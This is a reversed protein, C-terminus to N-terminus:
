GHMLIVNVDMGLYQITDGSHVFVIIYIKAINSSFLHPLLTLIRGPIKTLVPFIFIWHKTLSQSYNSIAIIIMGHFNVLIINCFRYNTVFFM